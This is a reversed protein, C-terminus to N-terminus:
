DTTEDALITFFQAQQIFSVVTHLLRLGMVKILENQIQPSTFKDKERELWLGLKLDGESQLKLTKMFHSDLGADHGRLALGQRCLFCISSIIKLLMARNEAKEKRHRESLAEGIDRTTLTLVVVAEVANHHSESVEHKRFVCYADKWGTFGRSIFSADM